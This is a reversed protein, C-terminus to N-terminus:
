ASPAVAEEPVRGHAWLGAGIVFCVISATCLGTLHVLGVLIGESSVIPIWCQLGAGGGVYDVVLALFGLAFFLWLIGGFLFLARKM